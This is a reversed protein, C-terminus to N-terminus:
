TGSTKYITGEMSSANTIYHPLREFLRDDIGYGTNDTMQSVVKESERDNEFKHGDPNQTPAPFLHYDKPSSM